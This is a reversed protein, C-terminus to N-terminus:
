ICLTPIPSLRGLVETKLLIINRASINRLVIEWVYDYYYLPFSDFTKTLESKEVVVVFFFIFNNSVLQLRMLIQLSHCM